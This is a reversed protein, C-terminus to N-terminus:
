FCSPVNRRRLAEKRSTIPPDYKVDRPVREIRIKGEVWQLRVTRFPSSLGSQELPLRRITFHLMRSPTWRAPYFLTPDFEYFENMLVSRVLVHRPPSPIARGLRKEIRARTPRSLGTGVVQTPFEDGPPQEGFNRRVVALDSLIKRADWFDLDTYIHYDYETQSPHCHVIRAM